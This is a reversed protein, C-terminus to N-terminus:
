VVQCVAPILPCGTLPSLHLMGVKIAEVLDTGRQEESGPVKFVEPVEKSWRV